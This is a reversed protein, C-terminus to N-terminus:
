DTCQPKAVIVMMLCDNGNLQGPRTNGDFSVVASISVLILLICLFVFLQHIKNCCSNKKKKRLAMDFVTVTNTDKNGLHQNEKTIKDMIGTLTLVMDERLSTVMDQACLTLPAM